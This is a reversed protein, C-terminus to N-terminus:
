NRSGRRGRGSSRAMSGDRISRRGPSSTSPQETPRGSILEIVRTIVDLLEDADAKTDIAHQEFRKWDGPDFSACDSEAGARCSPCKGCGPHGCEICDKLMSYMASLAGPDSTSMDSHASFKLLPMLGIKDAIRFREGMFEVTRASTVVRGEAVQVEAAAPPQAVQAAEGQIKALEQDFDIDLGADEVEPM